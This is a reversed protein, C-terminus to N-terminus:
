KARLVSRIIKIVRDLDETTLNSGSPLCLGNNFLKMAVGKGFYPMKEFLPQMHMPKWLPRSEINEEELSLRIQERGIGKTKSEDINIITLWRNSISGKQEKLFSIGYVDALNNKYYEFVARRQEIRLPLVEMQGRGIGAIVNSMRYNFGVESHQYHPACDRAQTSLFRAKEINKENDAILMGGGSTTIIKNGNFSLVGYEGFTGCFKGNISSGLAEAADEIVPIKYKRAIQTIENIKVPMGYLHVPIIAKPKKELSICHLIAKEMLAPDMGWTEDESDVFIPTAGQYMVANATAVFTLSQCIVYDGTTVGCLKLALHLSASGSSLAAAHNIRTYDCIDAEFGDVNPGIPAIWNTDFAQQIYKQESGSMHPSSLWIKEKQITIVKANKETQISTNQKL